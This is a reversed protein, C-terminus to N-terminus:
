AASTIGTLYACAFPNLFEVAFESTLSGGVGDVGNSTTKGGADYSEAKADRGEMYALKLASLDLVVAEGTIGNGNMMPHIVFNIDGLPHTFSTFRFGFNTQKQMIQVTGSAKAIKQIVMMTTNDVFATRMGSTSPDTSTTFAPTLSEVLEDYTVGATHNTINASAYQYMADIIGQTTHHPMGNLTGMKPQGYLLANEM